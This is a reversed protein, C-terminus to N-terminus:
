RKDRILGDSIEAHRWFLLEHRDKDKTKINHNLEKIRKSSLRMSMFYCLTSKDYM